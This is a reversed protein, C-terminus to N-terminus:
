NVESYIQCRVIWTNRLRRSGGKSQYVVHSSHHNDPHLLFSKLVTRPQITHMLQACDYAKSSSLSSSSSLGVLHATRVTRQIPNQKV